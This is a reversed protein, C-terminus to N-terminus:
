IIHDIQLYGDKIVDKIKMNQILRPLICLFADCEMAQSTLNTNVKWKKTNRIKIEFDIIKLTEICIIDFILLKSFRKHGMFQGYM